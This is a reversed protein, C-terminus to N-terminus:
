GVSGVMRMIDLSSVIGVIKNDSDTVIVRHFRSAVMRRAVTGVEDDPSATLVRPSMIEYLHTAALDKKSTRSGLSLLQQYRRLLDTKSVIGMLEGSASVVPVGSIHEDLLLKELETIPLECHLATVKKQMVDRIRM